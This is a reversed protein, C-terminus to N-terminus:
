HYISSDQDSSHRGTMELGNYFVKSEHHKGITSSVVSVYIMPDSETTFQPEMEMGLTELLSFISGALRRQLGM